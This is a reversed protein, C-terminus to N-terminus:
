QGLQSKLEKVFVAAGMASGHQLEDNRRALSLKQDILYLKAYEELADEDRMVPFEKLYDPVDVKDWLYTAIGKNAQYAAGMEFPIWMLGMTNETFLAIVHTCQKIKDVIHSAIETSSHVKPYYPSVFSDIDFNSKLYDQLVMAKDEDSIRYSIFIM